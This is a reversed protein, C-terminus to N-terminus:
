DVDMADTGPVRCNQGHQMCCALPATSGTPLILLPIQCAAASGPLGAAPPLDCARAIMIALAAALAM